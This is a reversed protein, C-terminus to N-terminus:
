LRKSFSRLSEIIGSLKRIKLFNSAAADTILKKWKDKRENEREKELKKRKPKSRTRIESSTQLLSRGNKNYGSSKRELIKGVSPNFNSM